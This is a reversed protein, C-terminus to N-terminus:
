FRHPFRSRQQSLFRAEPDCGRLGNLGPYMSTRVPPLGSRRTFCNPTDPQPRNWGHTNPNDPLDAPMEASRTCPVTVPPPRPKSFLCRPPVYDTTLKGLKGCYVFEGVRSM